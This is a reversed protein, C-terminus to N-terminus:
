SLCSVCLGLVVFKTAFTDCAIEEGLRVFGLRIVFCIVMGVFLLFGYASPRVNGEVSLRCM